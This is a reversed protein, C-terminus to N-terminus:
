VTLEDLPSFYPETITRAHGERFDTQQMVDRRAAWRRACRRIGIFDADGQSGGSSMCLGDASEQINQAAKHRLEVAALALRGLWSNRSLALFSCIIRIYNRM